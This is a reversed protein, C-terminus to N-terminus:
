YNLTVAERVEPTACEGHTSWFQDLPIWSPGGTDAQYLFRQIRIIGCPALFEKLRYQKWRLKQEQHYWIPGDADYRQSFHQM